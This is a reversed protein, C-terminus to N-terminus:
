VDHQWKWANELSVEILNPSQDVVQKITPFKTELSLCILFAIFQLEAQLIRREEM